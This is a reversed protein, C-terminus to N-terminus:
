EEDITGEKGYIISFKKWDIGTSRKIRDPLLHIYYLTSTIESHGMYTSLYPLLTVIDNGNDIWRMMNRTAFAHRLAYPRPIGHQVLGSLKWCHHFQATMWHTEFYNEKYEFFWNREGAYHNYKNCLDLMDDSMIIHRDKHRKSSRIYIDGTKLNVDKCLLHLPESPRMGCCYMMRFLPPLIIEPKFKKNSTSAKYCDFANFLALLEEDTFIYPKYSIRKISYDDDPIFAVKGLFNIFKTYQRLCAIFVAQNNQSYNYKELWSDIMEQTISIGDLHNNGCYAIFPLVMSKYTNTAYGVAERYDLMKQFDATLDELFSV